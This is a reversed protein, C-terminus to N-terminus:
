DHEVDMFDQHSTEGLIYKVKSLVHQKQKGDLVDSEKISKVFAKVDSKRVM